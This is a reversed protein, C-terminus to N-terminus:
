SQLIEPMSRLAESIPLIIIGDEYIRRSGGYILFGKASPYDRLISKLGGLMESTFRETRKVEIAKITKEGYLVFDVEAHNATRWYYLDYGLKLADNVSRLEQFILTEFAIGEIEFPNDLSGAPRITRYVGVDFFYFKQHTIMRRKAKKTFVPLRYGIMLDELISFYNEVVKRDIACDRAISSMNLVSGQSFSAAELLDIFLGQPFATKVWNTKGTGRPGFLFFSKDKPPIIIRPYM